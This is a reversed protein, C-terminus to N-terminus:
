GRWTGGMWRSVRAMSSGSEDSLLWKVVYGVDELEGVRGISHRVLAVDYLPKPDPNTTFEGVMPTGIVGPLVANVRVGATGAEYAAGRTLGLVGHKSAVYESCYPSGLRGNASSTNM